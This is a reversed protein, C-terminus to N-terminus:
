SLSKHPAAPLRISTVPLSSPQFAVSHPNRLTCIITLFLLLDIIKRPLPEKSRLHGSAGWLSNVPSCLCILLHLICIFCAHFPHEKGKLRCIRKVVRPDSTNSHWRCFLGPSFIMSASPSSLIILSFSHISSNSYQWWFWSVLAWWLCCLWFKQNACM